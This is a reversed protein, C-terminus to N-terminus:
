SKSGLLESLSEWEQYLEKLDHELGEKETSLDALAAYDSPDVEQFRTDFADILEEVNSIKEELNELKGVARRVEVPAAEGDRTSSIAVGASDYGRYELRRLGEILVDQARRQKGITGVIGCM